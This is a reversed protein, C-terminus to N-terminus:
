SQIQWPNGKMAIEFAM